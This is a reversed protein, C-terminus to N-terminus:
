QSRQEVQYGQKRLEDMICTADETDLHVILDERGIGSPMVQFLSLVEVGSKSIVDVVLQVSGTKKPEFIHLRVGPEGFGLV